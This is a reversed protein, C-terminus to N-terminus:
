TLVERMRVVYKWESCRELQGAVRVAEDRTAHVSHTESGDQYVIEVLWQVRQEGTGHCHPCPRVNDQM